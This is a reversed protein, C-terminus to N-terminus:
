GRRGGTGRTYGYAGAYGYDSTAEESNLVMGLLRARARELQQRVRLVVDRGVREVDVVLIVGDVKSAVAVADALMGAPPSDFIVVQAAATLRRVVDDMQVSSLLDAPNAPISGATVVKLGDVATRQLVQQTSAGDVLMESLGVRNPLGFVVHLRPRRLDADVLITSAGAQAFAAALHSAITTKGEQSGVSTILISRVAEGAGSLTLGIRLTRCAEAVPSDLAVAAIRGNRPVTALVPMNLHAEAEITTRFRAQLYEQLLALGLGALLGAVAAVVAYQVPRPRVPEDPPVATVAVALSERPSSPTTRAIFVEAITNAILASAGRDRDLVSVNILETGEVATVYVRRRLEKVGGELALRRAVTELVPRSAILEAYTRALRESSLLAGYYDLSPSPALTVRITATAVYAPPMVASVAASAGVAALTVLVVLWKRRRIARFMERLEM